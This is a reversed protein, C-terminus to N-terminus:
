ASAQSVAQKNCTCGGGGLVVCLWDLTTDFDTLVPCHSRTAPINTAESAKPVGAQAMLSSLLNMASEAKNRQLQWCRHMQICAADALLGHAPMIDCLRGCKYFIQANTPGRATICREALFHIYPSAVIHLYRCNATHDACHGVGIIATYPNLIHIQALM